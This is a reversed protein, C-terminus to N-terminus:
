RNWSSRLYPKGMQDHLTSNPHQLNVWTMDDPVLGSPAAERGTFYDLPNSAQPPLAAAPNMRITGADVGFTRPALFQDPNRISDYSSGPRLQNCQSLINFIGQDTNAGTGVSQSSLSSGVSGNWGSRVQHNSPPWHHGIFNGTNLQSQSPAAMYATNAAWDTVNVAALSDPRPIFPDQRPIFPDQRPIFPDQSPILYRGGANSHINQSMSEPMYVETARSQGPDLTLSM